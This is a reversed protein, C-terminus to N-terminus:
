SVSHYQNPFGSNLIIYNVGGMIAQHIMRISEAHDIGRSKSTLPKTPLRMCGMGFASVMFDLKGFKRYKM